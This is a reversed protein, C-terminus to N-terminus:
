FVNMEFHVIQTFRFRDSFNFLIIWHSLGNLIYKNFKASFHSLFTIIFLQNNMPGNSECNVMSDENRCSITNWKIILLFNAVNNYERSSSRLQSQIINTVVAVSPFYLKPSRASVGFNIGNEIGDTKINYKWHLVSFQYWSIALLEYRSSLLIIQLLKELLVSENAPWTTWM